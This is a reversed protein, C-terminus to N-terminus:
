VVISELQTEKDIDQNRTLLKGYWTRANVKQHWPLKQSLYRVLIRRYCFNACIYIQLEPWFRQGSFSKFILLM